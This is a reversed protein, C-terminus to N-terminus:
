ARRRRRIVHGALALGGLVLLAYTSPEPVASIGTTTVSQAASLSGDAGWTFQIFQVDSLANNGAASISLPVHTLSAGALGTNAGYSNVLDFNTDYFSVSFAFGPNTGAVSMDIFFGTFSSWDSVFKTMSENYWTNGLQIALSPGMLIGSASQTFIPDSGADITFNASGFSLLDINQASAQPVLTSLLVLAAIKSVLQKIIKM